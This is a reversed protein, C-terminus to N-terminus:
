KRKKPESSLVKKRKREVLYGINVGMNVGDFYTVKIKKSRYVGFFRLVKQWRTLKGRKMRNIAQNDIKM